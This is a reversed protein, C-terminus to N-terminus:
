RVLPATNFNLPSSVFDAPIRDILSCEPGINPSQKWLDRVAHLPSINPSQQWLDRVPRDPLLQEQLSTNLFRKSHSRYFPCRPGFNPSQQWLDRVAHLPSTNPSQQWLGDAALQHTTDFTRM